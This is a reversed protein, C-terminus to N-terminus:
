TDVDMIELNIFYAMRLLTSVKIMIKTIKEWRPNIKTRNWFIYKDKVKIRPHYQQYQNKQNTVHSKFLMETRGTKMTRKNAIRVGMKSTHDFIIEGSPFKEAIASLLKLIEDETFYMFLGGAMIFIGEKRAFQIKDMWSFDLVSQALYHYRESEPLYKKRFAIVDPLDIDYWHLQNNDCRFFNTELGAGLNVVTCSPHNLLYSKLADDLNRARALFIMGFYQVRNKHTKEILSYDLNYEAQIRNMLDMAIPDQLLGANSESYKARGWLPMFNTAQVSNFDYPANEPM